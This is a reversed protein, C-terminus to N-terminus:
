RVRKECSSMPAANPRQKATPWRASAMRFRRTDTRDCIATRLACRNNHRRRDSRPSLEMTRRGGGSDRIASDRRAHTRRLSYPEVRRVSEQYRLDVCLRYTSSVFPKWRLPVSQVKAAYCGWRPRDSRVPRVPAPIANTKEARLASLSELIM